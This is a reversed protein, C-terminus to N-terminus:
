RVGEAMREYADPEFAVELFGPGSAPSWDALARELAPAAEVRRGPVGLGDLAPVWSRGDMTIPEQTLGERLARTRISAFAGDTMLVVLLPLGHRVALKLEALYMGIGGDGVVVVTPHAGAQGADHLAAGIGMPVGTGMSRGQGSSLCGGTERTRWVHEGITCFTGTDLVIRVRGEFRRWMADYVRAPLFGAELLHQELSGLAREVLELGWSKQSLADLVDAVRALGATAAFAFGADGPAQVPDLNLSPCAFPAAKLVEGARLGLGVVLDADALVASEPAREQGVGTYVGAAQPRTEDVAGKAAATTFVPVGLDGLRAGWPQRLALTGAIVVPREARAVREVVGGAAAASEDAPLFSRVEVHASVAAAGALELLTPGPIERVAAEALEAFGSHNGSSVARARVVSSVLAAQDLRKHAVSLPSDPLHAESLAVLPFSEFHCVALGPLTNALGPGKISLSVGARGALRGSTGAMMAASGEFHTLHFRVDRHALADILELTAGSGPIGFVDRVGHAAIEDAIGDVWSM